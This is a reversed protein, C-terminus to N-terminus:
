GETVTGETGAEFTADYLLGDHRGIYLTMWEGEQVKARLCVSAEGGGQMTWRLGTIGWKDGAYSEAMRMYEEDAFAPEEDSFAADNYAEQATVDKYGFRVTEKTERDFSADVVIQAGDEGTYKFYAGMHTRSEGAYGQRCDGDFVMPLYIGEMYIYDLEMSLPCGLRKTLLERARREVEDYGGADTQDHVGIGALVAMLEDDTMSRYPNLIFEDQGSYYSEDLLLVAARETDGEAADVIGREILNSLTSYREREEATFMRSTEIGGGRACNRYNLGEPDFTLGLRHYADIISLIQEDTLCTGPLLVYVPEGDFDDPDLPYVGVVVDELRNLVSEGDGAAGGAEYAELLRRARVKEGSTLGPKQCPERYMILGDGSDYAYDTMDVYDESESWDPNGVQGYYSADPLYFAEQAVAIEDMEVPPAAEVVGETVALAAPGGLLCVCMGLLCIRKKM